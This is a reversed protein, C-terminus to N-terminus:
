NRRRQTYVKTTYVRSIVPRAVEDVASAIVHQCPLALGALATDLSNWAGSFAATSTLVPYAASNTTVHDGTLGGHYTRGRGTRTAFATRHSVVAALQPAMLTGTANGQQNVVLQHFIGANTIDLSVGIIDALTAENCTFARVDNSSAATDWWSDRIAECVDELQTPGLPTEAVSGIHIINVMDDGLTRTFRCTFRAVGNYNAM